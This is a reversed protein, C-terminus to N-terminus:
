NKAWKILNQFLKESLLLKFEFCSHMVGEIIEIDCYKHKKKFNRKNYLSLLKIFDHGHIYNRVEEDLMEELEEMKLYFLDVKNLQSNKGLYARIFKDEKFKIKFNKCIWYKSFDLWELNLNLTYNTVRILFLRVLINSFEKLIMKIPSNIIKLFNDFYKKFTEMNFLYMEINAYDTFWLITCGYDNNLLPDFDKDTICRVPGKNSLNSDLEKAFFIVKHRNNYTLSLNMDKAKKRNKESFSVCDSIQYIVVNTQKSFDSFNRFFILDRKGEVYIDRLNPELEYRTILEKITRFSEESM